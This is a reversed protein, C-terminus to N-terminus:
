WFLPGSNMRNRRPRRTEAPIKTPGMQSADCASSIYGLLDMVNTTGTGGPPAASKM